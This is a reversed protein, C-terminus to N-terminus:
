TSPGGRLAKGFADQLLDEATERSGVRRELFRLVARHNAVLTELTARTDPADVDPVADM